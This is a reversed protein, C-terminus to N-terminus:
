TIRGLPAAGLEAGAHRALRALEELEDREATAMTHQWAARQQEHLKAIAEAAARRQAFVARAGDVQNAAHARARAARARATELGRLMGTALAATAQEQAAAQCQAALQDIQAVREECQTHAAVAELLVRRAAQAEQQRWAQVRQLRFRFRRM